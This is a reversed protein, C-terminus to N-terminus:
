QQKLKWGKQQMCKRILIVEDKIDYADPSERISERVIKECEAHDAAWESSDKTPHQM